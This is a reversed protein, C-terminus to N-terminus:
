RFLAVGAETIMFEHCVGAMNYKMEGTGSELSTDSYTPVLCSVTAALYERDEIFVRWFLNTGAHRNNFRLRFSINGSLYVPATVRPKLVALVSDVCDAVSEVATDLTLEPQEPAHYPASIGTFDPLEGALAKKYLGKPDRQMCVALSTSLYVEIFNRCMGRIEDRVDRYPSILSVIVVHGQQEFLSAIYGVTLNHQKRSQEDFGTLRIMRRIEDGDLLVPRVGAQGLEGALANAITTKGAGSLGTLWVVAPPIGATGNNIFSSEM